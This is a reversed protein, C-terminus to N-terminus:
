KLRRLQTVFTHGLFSHPQRTAYHKYRIAIRRYEGPVYLDAQTEATSGWIFSGWVTASDGWESGVGQVSVSEQLTWNNRLDYAYECRITYDGSQAGFRPKWHRNQKLVAPAGFTNYHMQLLFDIDDGLNTYDNSSLEQYFAQGVLSSAVILKDEDNIATVARAVNAGTDLSELTATDGSYNLNIVYCQDNAAAGASSYWLYLRGKNYTLVAREKNPINKINEYDNGSLLKPQTGNSQIIGEDTLYYVFNKDQTVTEQSYTGKQDPAEDLRFTANDDGSLIYKNSRTFLLLYGNLSIMATVPDGTKPSPVYLFDTSTFTEYDAFNSFVVKNPDNFEALFMLGKHECILSYDTANVQADTGFGSGSLKRYGDFGNVYYTIDNVTAWRVYTSSADLGTKISTLANTADNVSHITQGHALLTKEGGDSKTARHLGKTGGTTSLYAKLNYDVNSAAWTVGSDTSVLGTSANTTSSVKYSGTGGSQVYLIAWYDTATVSPAARLRSIEYAYSSELDSGAISTRGLFVGLAGGVDTYLDIMIVGTAAADNKLRPDLRTVRGTTTFTIKKAIRTVANFSADAAGTTSTQQVDIAEGVGDSHIDLGKRTEYEGLTTIRANQALRWMNSGGDSVPFKDDSIYQNFGLSYDNCENTVTRSGISPIPKTIRRAQPM